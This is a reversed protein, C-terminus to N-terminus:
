LTQRCGPSRKKLAVVLLVELLDSAQIHVKHLVVVAAAGMAHQAAQVVLQLLWLALQYAHHAASHKVHGHVDAFAGGDKALPSAHLQGFVVLFLEPHGWAKGM